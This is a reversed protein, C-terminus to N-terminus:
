AQSLAPEKQEPETMASEEAVSEKTVSGEAVSEEAVSEHADPELSLEDFPSSGDSSGHAIGLLVALDCGPLPPSM